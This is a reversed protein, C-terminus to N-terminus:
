SKGGVDPRLDKPTGPDRLLPLIIPEYDNPAPASHRLNDEISLGCGGAISTQGQPKGQLGHGTWRNSSKFQVQEVPVRHQNIIPKPGEARGITSEDFDPKEFLLWM